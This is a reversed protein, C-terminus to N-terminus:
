LMVHRGHSNIRGFVCQDGRHLVMRCARHAPPPEGLLVVIPVLIILPHRAFEARSELIRGEDLFLIGMVTLLLCRQWM